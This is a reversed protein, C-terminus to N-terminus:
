SCFEDFDDLDHIIYLGVGSGRKGKFGDKNNKEYTNAMKNKNNNAKEIGWFYHVDFHLLQKDNTM